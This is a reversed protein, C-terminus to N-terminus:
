IESCTKIKSKPQILYIVSYDGGGTPDILKGKSDYCGSVENNPHYILYYKELDNSIIENNELVGTFCNPTTSKRMEDARDSWMGIRIDPIIAGKILNGDKAQLKVFYEKERNKIELSYDQSLRGSSYIKSNECICPEDKTIKSCRQLDKILKDFLEEAEEKEVNKIKEEIVREEINYCYDFFIEAFSEIKGGFTSLRSILLRDRVGDKHIKAEDYFDLYYPKGKLLKGETAKDFCLGDESRAQIYNWTTSDDDEKITKEGIGHTRIYDRLESLEIDESPIFAYCPYPEDIGFNSSFSIDKEGRGYMWWCRRMLSSIKQKDAEKVINPSCTTPFFSLVESSLINTGWCFYEDLGAMGVDQFSDTCGKFMVLFIILFATLLLLKGLTEMELKAKKM